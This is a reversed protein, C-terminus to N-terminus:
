EAYSGDDNLTKEWGDVSKHYANVKDICKKCILRNYHTTGYRTGVVTNSEEGCFDCKRVGMTAKIDELSWPLFGYKPDRIAFRDGGRRVEKVYSLWDEKALLAERLKEESEYVYTMNIEKAPTKAGAKQM